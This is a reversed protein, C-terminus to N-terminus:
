ISIKSIPNTACHFPEFVVPFLHCTGFQLLASANRLFHIFLYFYYIYIYIELYTCLSVFLSM